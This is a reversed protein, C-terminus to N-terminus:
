RLVKAIGVLEANLASLLYTFVLHGLVLVVGAGAVLAIARAFSKHGLLVRLCPYCHKRMLSVAVEHLELSIYLDFAVLLKTCGSGSSGSGFM